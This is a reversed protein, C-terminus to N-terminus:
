CPFSSVLNAFSLSAIMDDPEGFVKIIYHLM